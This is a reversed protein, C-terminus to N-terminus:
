YPVKPRSGALPFEELSHSVFTARQPEILDLQIVDRALELNISIHHLLICSNLSM